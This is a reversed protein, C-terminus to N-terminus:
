RWSWWITESFLKWNSTAVLFIGNKTTTGIIESWRQLFLSIPSSFICSHLPPLLLTIIFNLSSHYFAFKLPLYPLSVFHLAHSSSSVVSCKNSHLTYLSILLPLVSIFFIVYFFSSFLLSFVSCVLLTIRLNPSILWGARGSCTSVWLLTIWPVIELSKFLYQLLYFFLIYAFLQPIPSSHLRKTLSSAFLSAIFCSSHYAVIVDHIRVFSENSIKREANLTYSPIACEKSVM